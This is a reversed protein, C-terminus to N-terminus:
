EEIYKEQLAREIQECLRNYEVEPSDCYGDQYAFHLLVGNALRSIRKGNKSVLFKEFNGNIPASEGDPNLTKYLEHPIKEPEDGRNERSVVLETFPYTVKWESRAYDEAMKGDTIGNEYIGYTVKPGCYDNTPVAVVEFGQDKYKEYIRQITEFQPANGCHGTVNVILTVKGKFQQLFNQEGNVGNIKIDYINKQNM